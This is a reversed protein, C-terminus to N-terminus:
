VQEVGLGAVGIRRVAIDGVHGADGLVLDSLRETDEFGVARDDPGVDDAVTMLLADDVRRRCEYGAWPPAPPPAGPAPAGYGSFFSAADASSRAPAREGLPADGRSRDGGRAQWGSRARAHFSGQHAMRPRAQHETRERERGGLSRSSASLWPCAAHLPST